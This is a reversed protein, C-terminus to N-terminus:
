SISVNAISILRERFRFYEYNTISLTPSEIDDQVNSIISNSSEIGPQINSKCKDNRKKDRRSVDNVFVREIPEASQLINADSPIDENLRMAYEVLRAHSPICLFCEEDRSRQVRMIRGLVQRFYMETKTNSLYCCVRLRPINTGESIMGIAIIWDKSSVKYKQIIANAEPDVHSVLVSTTRFETELISQIKQAHKLSAAVILGGASCDKRKIRELKKLSVRLLYKIVEDNDILDFYNIDDETLLEDFSAFIRTEAHDTVCIKQSDVAVISPTRCVGDKIAQRIGYEYESDVVGTEECYKALVIPLNDSRWPTGSLALTFEAKDKIKELVQLGWTNADEICSGACHHIEDFIVFVRHHLFLQWFDNKLKLMRQYTYSAGIAGLGGNLKAGTCRELEEKFDLAVISSPSICVVLDILNQELLNKALVSAMTTKGAGPTALCFFHKCIEKYSKLAKGICENQWARLKFM